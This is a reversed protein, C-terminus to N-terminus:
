REMVRPRRLIRTFFFNGLLATEEPRFIFLAKLGLKHERMYLLLLGCASVAYSLSASGASAVIGYERTVLYGLPLCCASSLALVLSVIGPRAQNAFHIKLLYFLGLFFMGPVLAMACAVAPLYAKGFFIRVFPWLGLLALGCVPLMLWFYGRLVSHNLDRRDAVRRRCVASTVPLVVSDPIVCM